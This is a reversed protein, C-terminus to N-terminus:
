YAGCRKAAEVIARYTELSVGTHISHDSSFIYGGGAKMAPVLREIEAVAADRDAWLVANMGGHFALVEGYREKLALPDMGAKVEMPNLIDFGIEVLEPVLPMINGCSHLHAPIEHNHAWQVMRAHSPKLLSRYTGNSFFPTGKYGMDDYLKLAHFHYGRDWIRDLYRLNLDLMTSFMDSVWEPEELMAILMTELGTVNSHTIDFGFHATFEIFHGEAEWRPFDRAFGAWDLNAEDFAMRAKAEEWAAPTTVRFDLYQPTSDLENFQKKTVGWDTTHITYRETKEIVRQPFKPSVCNLWHGSVKDIDFYEWWNVGEPMGETRWRALTGRWTDDIIPVRDAEKHAIVRQFRERSTM